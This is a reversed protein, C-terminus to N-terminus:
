ILSIGFYQNVGPTQWEYDAFSFFTVDGGTAEQISAIATAQDEPSAIADGNNGGGSPWGTESVICPLGCISEVLNQQSVVFSGADSSSCSPDFYGYINAHVYTDVASCLEPYDQYVGPIDVTSIVGTYGAERLLTTCTGIFSVM